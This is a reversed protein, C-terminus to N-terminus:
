SECTVTLNSLKRGQCCALIKGNIGFPLLNWKSGVYIIWTHLVNIWLLEGETESLSDLATDISKESVNSWGTWRSSLLKEMGPVPSKTLYGILRTSLMTLGFQKQTHTYVCVWMYLLINKNRKRRRYQVKKRSGLHFGRGNKRKGSQMVQIYVCILIPVMGWWIFWREIAFPSWLFSCSSVICLDISGLSGIGLLYM